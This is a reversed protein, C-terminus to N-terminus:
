ITTTTTQAAAITMAASANAQTPVVMKKQVQPVLESRARADIRPESGPTAPLARVVPVFRAARAQIEM